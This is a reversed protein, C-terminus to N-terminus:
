ATLDIRPRFMSRFRLALKRLWGRPRDAHMAEALEPCNDILSDLGIQVVDPDQQFQGSWRCVFCEKNEAANIAGCLPCSKLNAAALRKQAEFM